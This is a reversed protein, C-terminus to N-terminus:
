RHRGTGKLQPGSPHTPTLTPSPLARLGFGHQEFVCMVAAVVPGFARISPSAFGNLGNVLEQAFMALRAVTVNSRAKNYMMALLFTRIGWPALYAADSAFVGHKQIKARMLCAEDIWQACTRPAFPTGIEDAARVWRELKAVANREARGARLVKNLGGFHMPHTEPSHCRRTEFLSAPRGGSCSEERRQPEM